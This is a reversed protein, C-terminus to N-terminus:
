PKRREIHASGTRLIQRFAFKLENALQRDNINNGICRCGSNFGTTNKRFLCRLDSCGLIKYEM